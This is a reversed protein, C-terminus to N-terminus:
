RAAAVFTMMNDALTRSVVRNYAITPVNGSPDVVTRYVLSLGLDPEEQVSWSGHSVSVLVVEPFSAHIEAVTEPHAAPDLTQWKRHCRGPVGDVSQVFDSRNIWARRTLATRPDKTVQYFTMSNDSESILVSADLRGTVAKHSEVDMLVACLRAPDVDEPLPLIGRFAMLDLAPVRKSSLVAGTSSDTRLPRWGVEDDLVVQVDSAVDAHAVSGLLGLAWLVRM